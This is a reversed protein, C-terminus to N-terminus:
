SHLTLVYTSTPTPFTAATAAAPYFLMRGSSMKYGGHWEVDYTLARAEEIWPADLFADVRLQSM